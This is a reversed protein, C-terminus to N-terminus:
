NSTFYRLSCLNLMNIVCIVPLFSFPYQIITNNTNNFLIIAKIKNNCFLVIVKSKSQYLLDIVLMM